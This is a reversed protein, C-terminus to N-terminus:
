GDPTLRVEFHEAKADFRALLDHAGPMIVATEYEEGAFARVAAMSDFLTLTVFEVEDGRERRLVYGGRFGETEIGPLMGRLLDEYADAKEPPTRGKWLRGIM